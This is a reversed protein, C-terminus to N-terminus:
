HVLQCQQSLSHEAETFIKSSEKFADTWKMIPSKRTCRGVCHQTNLLKEAFGAHGERNRPDPGSCSKKKNGLLFFTRLFFCKVSASSTFCFVASASFSMLISLSLFQATSFGDRYTYQMLHLASQLHSFNLCTLIFVCHKLIFVM